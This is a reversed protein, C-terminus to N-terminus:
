KVPGVGALARTGGVGKQQPPPAPNSSAKWAQLSAMRSNRFAMCFAKAPAPSRKLGALTGDTLKPIGYALSQRASPLTEPAVAPCASMPIGYFCM